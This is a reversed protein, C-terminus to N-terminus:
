TAAAPPSSPSSTAPRPCGAMERQHAASVKRTWHSYAGGSIVLGTRLSVCPEGQPQSCFGCGDERRADDDTVGRFTCRQHITM